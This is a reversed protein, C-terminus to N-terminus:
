DKLIKGGKVKFGCAEALAEKEAKTANMGLIYRLLMNKAASASVGRVDGDNIKYGSAAILLLTEQRSLELDTIAKIVKKRKSGAIVEGDKDLDSQIGKTAFYYQYYSDYSVGAKKFLQSKAYVDTNYEKLAKESGYM